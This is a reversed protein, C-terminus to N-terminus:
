IQHGILVTQVPILGRNNKKLFSTLIWNVLVINEPEYSNGQKLIGKILNWILLNFLYMWNLVSRNPSELM